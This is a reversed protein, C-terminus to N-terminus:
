CGAGSRRISRGARDGNKRERIRALRRSPWILVNQRLTLSSASSRSGGCSTTITSPSATPKTASTNCAAAPRLLAPSLRLPESEGPLYIEEEQKALSLLTPPTIEQDRFAALAANLQGKGGDILLIDPFVEDEDSCAAQYRRAISKTSAASITSARCAASRTAAIARSSRCATSSSCSAPWRRAAASTPSTSAKSRGRCARRAEASEEPRGAGEESRHLVSGAPRAYRARRPPRANGAAPDRRAAPGGARVEAGQGGAAMEGKM